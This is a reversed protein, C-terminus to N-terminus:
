NFLCVLFRMKLLIGFSGAMFMYIKSYLNKIKEDSTVLKLLRAIMIHYLKLIQYYKWGNDVISFLDNLMHSSM